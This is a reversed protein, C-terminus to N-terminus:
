CEGDVGKILGASCELWESWLEPTNLNLRCCPDDVRGRVLRGDWELERLLEDLRLGEDQADALRQLTYRSLWVPHGGDKPSVAECSRTGADVLLDRWLLPAPAPVDVPLWFAGGLGEVVSWRAALRLSDSMPAEPNPQTCLKVSLGLLGAMGLWSRSEDEDTGLPLIVLARWGGAQAFRRLQWLIWPENQFILMHKPSGMRSSRGGACLLLPTDVVNM